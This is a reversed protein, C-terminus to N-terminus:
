AYKLATDSLGSSLYLVNYISTHLPLMRVFPTRIKRLVDSTLSHAGPLIEYSM